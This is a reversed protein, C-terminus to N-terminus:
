RLFPLKSHNRLFFFLIGFISWSLHGILSINGTLGIAINICLFVWASTHEPNNRARLEMFLYALVAMAFGSIGITNGSSFFLISTGVFITNLLFFIIFGNRWLIKEVQNGFIYLFLSNSLLHLIGGHLFQYLLLQITFDLYHWQALFFSNMGYILINGAFFSMGTLLFSLIVLINAFSKHQM